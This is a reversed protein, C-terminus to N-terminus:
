LTSGTRPATRRRRRSACLPPPMPPPPPRWKTICGFCFLTSFSLPSHTTVFLRLTSTRAILHGDRSCSRKGSKGMDGSRNRKDTKCSGFSGQSWPTAQHLVCVLPSNVISWRLYWVYSKRGQERSLPFLTDQVQSKSRQRKMSRLFLMGLDVLDEEM